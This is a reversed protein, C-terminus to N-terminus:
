KLLKNTGGKKFVSLTFNKGFKFRTGVISSNVIQLSTDHKITFSIPTLNGSTNNIKIIIKNNHAVVALTWNSDPIALNDELNFVKAASSFTIQSTDTEGKVDLTLTQQCYS